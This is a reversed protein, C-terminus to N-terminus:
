RSDLHGLVLLLVHLLHPSTRMMEGGEFLTTRSAALDKEFYPTLDALFAVGVGFADLSEQFILLYVLSKRVCSQNACFLYRGLHLKNWAIKTVCLAYQEAFDIAYLELLEIWTHILRRHLLKRARMNTFVVHSSHIIVVKPLLYNYWVASINAHAYLKRDHLDSSLIIMMDNAVICIVLIDFRADHVIQLDHDIHEYYESHIHSYVIYDHCYAVVFLGLFQRLVNNMFRMSTSSAHFRDILMVLCM